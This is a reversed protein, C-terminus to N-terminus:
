QLQAKKVSPLHSNKGTIDICANDHHQQSSCAFFKSRGRIYPSTVKIVTPNLEYHKHKSTMTASDTADRDFWASKTKMTLTSM